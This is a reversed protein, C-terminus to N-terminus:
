QEVYYNNLTKNNIYLKYIEMEKRERRRGGSSTLLATTTSLIQQKPINSVLRHRV